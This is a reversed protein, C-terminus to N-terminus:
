PAIEVENKHISKLGTGEQGCFELLPYEGTLVEVEEQREGEKVRRAIEFVSADPLGFGLAESNCLIRPSVEQTNIRSIFRCYERWFDQLEVEYIERKVLNSLEALIYQTTFLSFKEMYANLREWNERPINVRDRKVNRKMLFQWFGVAHDLLPGTDLVIKKM